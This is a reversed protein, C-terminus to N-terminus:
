VHESLCLRCHGESGIVDHREWAIEMEPPGVGLDCLQLKM